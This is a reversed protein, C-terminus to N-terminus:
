CAGLCRSLLWWAARQLANLRGAERATGIRLPGGRGCWDRLVARSVQLGEKVDTPGSAASDPAWFPTWGFPVLGLKYFKVARCDGAVGVGGDGAM